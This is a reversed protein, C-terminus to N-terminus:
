QQVVEVKKYYTEIMSYSALDDSFATATGCAVGWKLAEIADHTQDFMGTFGAVMSDGAGVSNKVTGKIPKAFYSADHTILLAGKSAMSVLVHEAGKQLLQRGYENIEEMTHLTVNFIAELEHHNPKILLPRYSLSNLLMKGEFDCVIRAQTKAVTDILKSYVENGLHSPASGAFVVIDEATLHSLLTILELLKEESIYPGAGNIETELDSKVKVNIRSDEEVQIFKTQISEEHLGAKIFDGTFGGIFGTAVTPISLRQLIRSVNIGKGGVYKSDSKTRNVKGSEFQDLRVIYDISPNLTVTYIM